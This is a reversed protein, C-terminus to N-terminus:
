DCRSLMGEFLAIKDEDNNQKAEELGEMAEKALAKIADELTAYGFKEYNDLFSGALVRGQLYFHDYWSELINLDDSM